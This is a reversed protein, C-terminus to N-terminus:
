PIVPTVIASTTIPTHALGSAFDTQTFKIFFKSGIPGVCGFKAKYQDSIDYPSIATNDLVAIQRFKSGGSSLGASTAATAFVMIRTAVDIPVSFSVIINSGRPGETVAGIEYLWIDIVTANVPDDTENGGMGVLNANVMLYINFGSIHLTKGFIDTEPHLDSFHSWCGRQEDTLSAWKKTLRAILTRRKQQSPTNRNVPSIKTRLINGSANKQAVHGGLKGRGDVIIAGFNVKM